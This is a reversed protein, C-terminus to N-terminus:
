ISSISNELNSFKENINLLSNKFDIMLKSYETITEYSIEM